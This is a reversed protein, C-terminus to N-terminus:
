RVNNLIESWEPFAKQFDNNRLLDYHIVHDWFREILNEGPLNMRNLIVRIRQDTSDKFKENIKKKVSEPLNSINLWSPNEVFQMPGVPVSVSDCFAFFKDIEWINYWNMTCNFMVDDFDKRFKRVNKQIVDFSSGERQYDNREHIDDLSIRLHFRKIKRFQKVFKEDYHTGNTVVLIQINELLDHDDLYNAISKIENNVLPEGGAFLIYRCDDFWDKLIPEHHTNIIKNSLYYKRIEPTSEEKAIQSSNIPGCMRCKLNCVNTTKFEYYLPSTDVQARTFNMRKAWSNQAYRLSKGGADEVHWCDSCEEPKEGNLFQSRLKKYNDNNWIDDIREDKLYGLAKTYKCCPLVGGDPDISMQTFPAKCFYKM